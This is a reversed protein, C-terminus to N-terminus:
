PWRTNPLQSPTLVRPRPSSWEEHPTRGSNPPSTTSGLSLFNFGPSRRTRRM